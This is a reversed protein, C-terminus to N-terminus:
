SAYLESVPDSQFIEKTEINIFSLPGGWGAGTDMLWVECAHIPWTGKFNLTPTHGLYVELYSTVPKEDGFYKRLMAESILSRDWLFVDRDQEELPMEPRIGGHVFFRGNEELYCPAHQLLKVHEEPMGDAYSHLTEAGGQSDWIPPVAGTKAWELAWLDHNGILYILKKIKLLEDFVRNVEPGRDCVDGLCILRDNKYDFGIRELGQMFARYAGHIDATVFTRM